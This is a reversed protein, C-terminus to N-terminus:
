AAQRQEDRWHDAHAEAHQEAARRQAMENQTAELQQITEVLQTTYNLADRAVRQADAIDEYAPHNPDLQRLALDCYGILPGFLNQQKHLIQPVMHGLTLLRHAELLHTILDHIAM